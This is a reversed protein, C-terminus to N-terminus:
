YIIKKYVILKAVTRSFFWAWTVFLIQILILAQKILIQKDLKYQYFFFCFILFIFCNTKLSTYSVCNKLAVHDNTRNNNRNNGSNDNANHNSSYDNINNNSIEEQTKQTIFLHITSENMIGEVENIKQNLDIRRGMYIVMVKQTNLNISLKSNITTSLIEQLTKNVQVSITIKDNNLNSKFSILLTEEQIDNNSNELIEEILPYDERNNDDINHNIIRDNSNSSINNTNEIRNLRMNRIEEQSMVNSNTDINDNLNRNNRNDRINRNDRNNINNEERHIGLGARNYDRRINYFKFVFYVSSIIFFILTPYFFEQNFEGIM